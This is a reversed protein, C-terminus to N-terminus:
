RRVPNARSYNRSQPGRGGTIYNYANYLFDAPINGLGLASGGLEGYRDEYTQADSFRPASRWGVGLNVGTTRQPPVIKEEVLAPFAPGVHPANARRIQSRLLENELEGRELTIREMQQIPARAGQTSTAMRSRDIDQGMQGLFSLDPGGSGGVNVPSFSMTQAGLGYLPHIGAKLSDAVKWQIGQQAFQKQLKINKSAAKDASSKGILSSAISGIGGLIAGLM